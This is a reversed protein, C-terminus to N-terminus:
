YRAINSEKMEFYCRECVLKIGAFEMVEENWEGQKLRETECENCWAQFDDDEFEFEMDEFTEFSEHFGANSKRTLHQCVFARRRREHKECDLFKDKEETAIDNDVLESILFFSYLNESEPRYAGLGDLLKCAISTFEWGQDEFSEFLGITLKEFGNSIGFRHVVELKEKVKRLTQENDWSWKWTKSIKSFTGVCHYRFNIESDGKSFTIIGAADDYFWRPYSDIDYTEMFRGQKQQLEEFCDILFDQYDLVTAM